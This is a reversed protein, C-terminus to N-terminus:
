FATANMVRKFLSALLTQEDWLVFVAEVPEHGQLERVLIRVQKVKGPAKAKEIQGIDVVQRSRLFDTLLLASSFFSSFTVKFLISHDEDLARHLDMGKLTGQFIDAHQIRDYRFSMYPTPLLTLRSAARDVLKVGVTRVVQRHGLLSQVLVFTYRQHVYMDVSESGSAHTRRSPDGLSLFCTQTGAM